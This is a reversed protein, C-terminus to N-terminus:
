KIRRWVYGPFDHEFIMKRLDEDTKFFFTSRIETQMQKSKEPPLSYLEEKFRNYLVTHSATIELQERNCNRLVIRHRNVEKPEGAKKPIAM